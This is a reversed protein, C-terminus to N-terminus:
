VTAPMLDRVYLGPAPESAPHELSGLDGPAKIQEGSREWGPLQAMRPRIEDESLRAM